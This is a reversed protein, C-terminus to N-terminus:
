ASSRTFVYENSSSLQAQFRYGDDQFGKLGEPHDIRQQVMYRAMMGRAKKAYFSIQKLTGDREEKFTCTIVDAHLKETHVASFYEDSALRIVFTSRHEQLRENLLDTIQSGWFDYLNDGRDTSLRTGMELRYPQILDLPRLLGYLGSLIHVHDQAYVLDDKSLTPADFGTYTDGDFMLSAPKANEDTFPFSMKAFREHNLTALKESIHMLSQLDEVSLKQMVGHLAQTADPFALTTTPLRRNLPQENLKKAPSLLALM